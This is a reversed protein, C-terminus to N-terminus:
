LRLLVHLPWRVKERGELFSLEMLCLAAAVEGGAKEVLRCAAALTGGTALVDDVVAVRSGAPIADQHVEIQDTGYELDYSEEITAHPLKGKKRIPVLAAGLRLALPGAFLFGRSEIGAVVQIEKGILMRHMAEVVEGFAVPDALLPTIDRFLVGPKPFDPIDRIYTKLDM